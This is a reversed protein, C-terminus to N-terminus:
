LLFPPCPDRCYGTHSRWHYFLKRFFFDLLGSICVCPAWAGHVRDYGVGKGWTIGKTDECLGYFGGNVFGLIGSVM